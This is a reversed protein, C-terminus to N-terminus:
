QITNIGHLQISANWGRHGFCWVVVSDPLNLRVTYHYQTVYEETLFIHIHVFNHGSFHLGLINWLNEMFDRCKFKLSIRDWFFGPNLM